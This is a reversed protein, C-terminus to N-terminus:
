MLTVQVPAPQVMVTVSLAISPLLMKMVASPVTDIFGVDDIM